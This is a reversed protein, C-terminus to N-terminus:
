FLPKIMNVSDHYNWQMWDTKTGEANMRVVLNPNKRFHKILMSRYSIKEEVMKRKQELYELVVKDRLKALELNMTKKDIAYISYKKGRFFFGKKIFEISKIELEETM